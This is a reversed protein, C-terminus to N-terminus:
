DFWVFVIHVFDKHLSLLFLVHLPRVRLRVWTLQNCSLLFTAESKKQTKMDTNPSRKLSVTWTSCPVLKWVITPQFSKKKDMNKFKLPSFFGSLLEWQLHWVLELTLMTVEHHACMCEHQIYKHNCASIAKSYQLYINDNNIWFSTLPRQSHNSLTWYSYIKYEIKAGFSHCLFYFVHKFFAKNGSSFRVIQTTLQVFQM